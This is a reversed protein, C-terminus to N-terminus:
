AVIVQISVKYKITELRFEGLKSNKISHRIWKNYKLAKAM